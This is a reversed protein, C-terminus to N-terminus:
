SGGGGCVQAGYFTHHPIGRSCQELFLLYDRTSLSPSFLGDFSFTIFSTCRTYTWTCCCIIKEAIEGLYFPLDQIWEEKFIWVEPVDAERVNLVVWPKVWWFSVRCVYQYLKTPFFCFLFFCYMLSILVFCVVQDMSFFPVETRCQQIAGLSQWPWRGSFYSM